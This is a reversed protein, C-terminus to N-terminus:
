DATQCLTQIAMIDLLHPACHRSGVSASLVLDEDLKSGSFSRGNASEGLQDDKSATPYSGSQIIDRDDIPPTESRERACGTSAVPLAALLLFVLRSLRSTM